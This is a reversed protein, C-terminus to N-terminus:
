IQLLLAVIRMEIRQTSKRYYARLGHIRSVAANVRDTTMARLGYFCANERRNAPVM